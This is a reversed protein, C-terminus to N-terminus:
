LKVDKKQQDKPCIEEKIKFNGKFANMLIEFKAKETFFIIFIIKTAIALTMFSFILAVAFKLVIM